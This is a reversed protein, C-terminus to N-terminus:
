DGGVVFVKIKEENNYVVVQNLKWTGQQKEANVVVNADQKPGSLSFSLNAKGLGDGSHSVEGMVFYGPELPSGLYKAVETNREIEAVAMEFAEGKLMSGISMFLLPFVVFFISLGAIAWKRQVKKFHDVDRWIRNQWAWENGKAGLVFIMVLNVFPIFMLLAIYTSNGIGWIWNLFFAGWNWKKLEPPLKSEKGQGSIYEQEM